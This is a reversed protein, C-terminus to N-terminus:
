PNFLREPKEQLQVKTLPFENVAQVMGFTERTVDVYPEGKPSLLTRITYKAELTSCECIGEVYPDAELFKITGAVLQKNQEDLEPSNPKETLPRSFMESLDIEKEEKPNTALDPNKKFESETLKFETIKFVEGQTTRICHMINKGAKPTEPMFSYSFEGNNGFVVANIKGKRMDKFARAVQTQINQNREETSRPTEKTM